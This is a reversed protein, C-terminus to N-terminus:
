WIGPGGSTSWRTGPAADQDLLFRRVPARDDLFQVPAGTVPDVVARGTGFSLSEPLRTEALLM